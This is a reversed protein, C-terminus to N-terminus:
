VKQMIHQIEIDKKVVVYKDIKVRKNQRCYENSFGKEMKCLTNNEETEVKEIGNVMQYITNKILNFNDLLGFLHSTSEDSYKMKSSM